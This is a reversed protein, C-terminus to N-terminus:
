EEITGMFDALRQNVQDGDQGHHIRRHCTPCIAAVWRPHDPGGDALRLIHHPELYPTANRRNFPAPTRCSECVGNARKLVYDRVSQSRVQVNQLRQTPTANAPPGALAKRRLEALSDSSRSRRGRSVRLDPARTPPVPASQETDLALHFVIIKRLEGSKDPGIGEHHDICSAPGDYRVFADKTRTFLHIKKGDTEAERIALNGRIWQMDGRQGEGTYWFVGDPQVGDTYGYQEGTDGTFILIEQSGSPTSIGGQRQGGLADHVDTRRYEEGIILDM